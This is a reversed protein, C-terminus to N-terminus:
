AIARSVREVIEKLPTHEAAESYVEWTAGGDEDLDIEVSACPSLNEAKLHYPDAPDPTRVNLGLTALGATLAAIRREMQEDSFLEPAEDQEPVPQPDTGATGEHYVSRSGPDHKDM